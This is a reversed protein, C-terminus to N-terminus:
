GNETKREAQRTESSLIKLKTILDGRDHDTLCLENLDTAAGWGLSQIQEWLSLVFVNEPLLEPYGFPCTGDPLIGDDEDCFPTRDVESAESRCQDCGWGKNDVVARM